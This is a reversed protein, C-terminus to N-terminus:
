NSGSEFLEIFYGDPDQLFLQIAGDPRRGPGSYTVGKRKLKKEAEETSTVRLAFHRRKNQYVDDSRNGILHLEQSKGLRFWAGPFDFAPRPLLALGLVEKYFAVSKEVDKVYIAVHNLELIQM